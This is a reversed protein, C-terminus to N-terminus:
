LVCSHPVNHVFTTFFGATHLLQRHLVVYASGNHLVFHACSICQVIHTKVIHLVFSADTRNRTLQVFESSTKFKSYLQTPNHGFISIHAACSIVSIFLITHTCFTCPVIHACCSLSPCSTLLM